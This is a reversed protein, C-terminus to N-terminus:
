MLFSFSSVFPALWFGYISPCIFSITSPSLVFLYVIQSFQINRTTRLTDMRFYFETFSIDPVRLSIEGSDKNRFQDM